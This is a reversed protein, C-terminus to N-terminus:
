AREEQLLRGPSMELFLGAGGGGMPTDCLTGLLRLVQWRLLGCTPQTHKRVTQPCSVLMFSNFFAKIVEQVGGLVVGGKM